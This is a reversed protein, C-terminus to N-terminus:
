IFNGLYCNLNLSVIFCFTIFYFDNQSFKFFEDSSDNVDGDDCPAFVFSEM